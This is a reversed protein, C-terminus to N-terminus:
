GPTVLLLESLCRMDSLSRICEPFQGESRCQRLFLSRLFLFWLPGQCYAESPFGAPFRTRLFGQLQEESPVTLLYFFDGSRGLGSNVM